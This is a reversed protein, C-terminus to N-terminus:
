QSQADYWDANPDNSIMGQEPATSNEDREAAASAEAEKRQREMLLDAKAEPSIATNEIVVKQTSYWEQAEKDSIVNGDDDLRPKAVKGAVDIDPDITVKQGRVKPKDMNNAPVARRVPAVPKPSPKPQTMEPKAQVPAAVTTSEVEPEDKNSSFLRSFFGGKSAKEEAEAAKQAKAEAAAKAQEVREAEEKAAEDFADDSIIDRPDVARQKTASKAQQLQEEASLWEDREKTNEEVAEEADDEGLPIEIQNEVPAQPESAARETTAPEPLVNEIASDAPVSVPLVESVSGSTKPKDFIVARSPAESEAADEINEENEEAEPKAEASGGGFLRAFFGPSEDKEPKAPAAKVEEVEDAGWMRAFFGPEKRSATEQAKEANPVEVAGGGFLSGVSGGAIRSGFSPKDKTARLALFDGENTYVYLINRYTRLPARVGEGGVKYRAMIHGDVQSIFHLYGDYDGVVVSDGFTVPQSLKRNKLATQTWSIGDGGKKFATVSGDTGAVYINGYGSAVGETSSAKREWRRTGDALNLLAVRGQYGVAFLNEGELLLEGDVDALREIETAGEPTSIRREWRFAGTEIDLAVVRGNPLGVLALGNALLPTGTGRVTLRPLVVDYRWIEAGTRANLGLVRGDYTQVVVMSGDSQPASLVEGTVQKDWMVEGNQANLALVAGEKLGVLVLGGGTGVGGSVTRGLKYKWSLSGDRRDVAVLLGNESVTIIRNDLFAPALRNYGKGQGNGVSYDWLKIFHKEQEIDTLEAPAKDKNENSSCAALFLSLGFVFLAKQLTKTSAQRTM